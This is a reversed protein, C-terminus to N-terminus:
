FCVGSRRGFVCQEKWRLEGSEAFAVRVKRDSPVFVQVGRERVSGWIEFELIWGRRTGARNGSPHLGGFDEALAAATGEGISRRADGRAKRIIGSLM